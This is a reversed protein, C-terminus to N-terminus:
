RRKLTSSQGVYILCDTELKYHLSRDRTTPPKTSNDIEVTRVYCQQEGDFIATVVKKGNEISGEGVAKEPGYVLNSSANLDYVTVLVDKSTGHIRLDVEDARANGMGTFAIVLTALLTKYM